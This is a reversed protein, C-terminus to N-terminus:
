TFPRRDSLAIMIPYAGIDNHVAGAVVASETRVVHACPLVRVHPLVSAERRDDTQLAGRM